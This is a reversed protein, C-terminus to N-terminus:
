LSDIIKYTYLNLRDIKKDIFLKLIIENYLNPHKFYDRVDICTNYNYKYFNKSLKNWITRLRVLFVLDNRKNYYNYIWKIYNKVFKFMAVKGVLCFCLYENNDRQYLFKLTYLDEEDDTISNIFTNYNGYSAIFSKVKIINNHIIFQPKKLKLFNIIRECINLIRWKSM